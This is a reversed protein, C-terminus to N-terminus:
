IIINDKKKYIYIYLIMFLIIIVYILYSHIKNKKTQEIKVTDSYLEFKTNYMFNEYTKYELNIKISVERYINYCLHSLDNNRDIYAKIQYKKIIDYLMNQKEKDFFFFPFAEFFDIIMKKNSKNAIYFISLQGMMKEILEQVYYNNISKNAM